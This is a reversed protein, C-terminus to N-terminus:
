CPPWKYVRLCVGPPGSMLLSHLQTVCILDVTICYTRTCSHRKVTQRCSFSRWHDSGPVVAGGPQARVRQAQVEAVGNVM